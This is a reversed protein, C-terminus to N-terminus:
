SRLPRYSLTLYVPKKNDMLKPREPTMGLGCVPPDQLDRSIELGAMQKLCRVVRSEPLDDVTVLAM